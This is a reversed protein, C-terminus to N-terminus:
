KSKVFQCKNIINFLNKNKGKSNASTSMTNKLHSNEIKLYSVRINNEKTDAESIPDEVDPPFRFVKGNSHDNMSLYENLVGSNNKHRSIKNKFQLTRASGFHIDAVDKSSTQSPLMLNISSGYKQSKMSLQKKFRRNERESNKKNFLEFERKLKRKYKESQLFKLKKSKNKRTKSSTFFGMNIKKKRSKLGSNQTIM